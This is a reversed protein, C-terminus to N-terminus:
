SVQRTLVTVENVVKALKEKLLQRVIFDGTNGTGIVAFNKYASM